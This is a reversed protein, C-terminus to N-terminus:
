PSLIRIMNEKIYREYGNVKITVDLYFENIGEIRDICIPIICEGTRNTQNYALINYGKITVLGHEIPHNDSSDTVMVHITTINKTENIFDITPTIITHLTSSPYPLSTVFALISLIVAVSIVLSVILKLPLDIVANINETIPRNPLQQTHTVM